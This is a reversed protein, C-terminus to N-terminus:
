IYLTVHLGLSRLNSPAVQERPITGSSGVLGLYVDDDDDDDYYYYYYCYYYIYPFQANNCFKWVLFNPSIVYKIYIIKSRDFILLEYINM